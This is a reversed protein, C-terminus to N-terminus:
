GTTEAGASLASWVGAEMGKQIDRVKFAREPLAGDLPEGRMRALLMGGLAEAEEMPDVEFLTVDFPYRMRAGVNAHTAIRLQDPVQLRMEHISLCAEDFLVDDGVLLGDPKEDAGFWIERFEEWGAGALMPHLDGRVWQPRYELGVAHLAERFPGPLRQSGWALLAIRRCGQACLRRVGEHAMVSYDTQVAYPTLTGVVPIKLGKVWKLWAPEQPLNQLVLGSLRGAAVDAAIRSDARPPRLEGADSEGVYIEARWGQRALWLRLNRPVQLHFLSTRPQFVDLNTYIGVFPASSTEAVYVGSGHRVRLVGEHALLAQASRLTWESVGLETAMVKIGPLREGPKMDRRIHERLHTAVRDFMRETRFNAKKM